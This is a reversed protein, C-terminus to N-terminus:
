AAQKRFVWSPIELRHMATFGLRLMHKCPAKWEAGGSKTVKGFRWAPCTCYVQGGASKRIEYVIGDRTDSKVTTVVTKAM